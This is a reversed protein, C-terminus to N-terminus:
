RVKLNGRQTFRKECGDLKCEFPKEGTHVIAHASLNSPQGFRKGCIECSFRREGSHRNM